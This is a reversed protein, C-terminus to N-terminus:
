RKCIALNVFWRALFKDEFIKRANLGIELETADGKFGNAM